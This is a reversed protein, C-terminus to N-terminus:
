TLRPIMKEFLTMLEAAGTAADNGSASPKKHSVFHQLSAQVDNVFAKSQRYRGTNRFVFPIVEV